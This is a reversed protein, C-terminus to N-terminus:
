IQILLLFQIQVTETTGMLDVTNADGEEGYSFIFRDQSIGQKEVLYSIVTNVRDWSLQQARKDSAGHGIVRVRCDPTAKIQSAASALM